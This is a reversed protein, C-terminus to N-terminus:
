LEESAKIRELLTQIEKKLLQLKDHIARWVTNLDINYYDHVLVHRFKIILEWQIHSNQKQLDKTIRYAAEGIIEFNKVVAFQLIKNELFAEYSSDKTFIQINEIAELIHKLRQIDRIQERM